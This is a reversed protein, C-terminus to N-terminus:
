QIVIKETYIRGAEQIKIFYMGKSQSSIDVKREKERSLNDQFILKGFSDYIDISSSSFEDQFNL